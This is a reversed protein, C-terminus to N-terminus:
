SETTKAPTNTNTFVESLKKRNQETWGAEGKPHIISAHNPLRKSPNHVVEFGAARIDRAKASGTVQSKEQLGSADPFEERMQEAAKQPDSGELVSIAVERKNNPPIPKATKELSGDTMVRPALNEVDGGGMRQVVMEDPLPTGRPTEASCAEVARAPEPKAAGM